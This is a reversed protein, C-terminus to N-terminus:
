TDNRFFGEMEERLRGFASPSLFPIEQRLEIGRSKNSFVQLSRGKRKEQRIIRLKRKRMMLLCLIYTAPKQRLEEDKCAKSIVQWIADESLKLGKKGSAIESKWSALEGEKEEPHCPLCFDRRLWNEEEIRLTSLYAEGRSFERRCQHCMRTTRAVKNPLEM